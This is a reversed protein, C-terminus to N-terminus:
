KINHKKNEIKIDQLFIYTETIMKMSKGLIIEKSSIQSSRNPYKKKILKQEISPFIFNNKTYYTKSM